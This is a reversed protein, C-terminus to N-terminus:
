FLCPTFLFATTKLSIALRYSKCRPLFGLSRGSGLAVRCLARTLCFRNLIARISQYEIGISMPILLTGSVSKSFDNAFDREDNYESEPTSSLFRYYDNPYFDSSDVVLDNDDDLDCSDGVGDGDFDNLDLPNCTDAAASAGLVLLSVILNVFVRM